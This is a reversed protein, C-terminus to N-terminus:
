VDATLAMPPADRVSCNQVIADRAVTSIRAVGSRLSSCSRAASARLTLGPAGIVSGARLTERMTQAPSTGAIGYARAETVRPRGGVAPPTLM